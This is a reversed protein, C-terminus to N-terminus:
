RAKERGGSEGHLIAHEEHELGAVALAGPLRGELDSNVHSPLPQDTPVVCNEHHFGPVEILQQHTTAQTTPTTTLPTPPPQQFTGRKSLIGGGDNCCM